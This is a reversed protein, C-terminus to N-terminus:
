YFCRWSSYAFVLSLPKPAVQIQHVAPNITPIDVVNHSKAGSVLVGQQSFHYVDDSNQTYFIPPQIGMKCVIQNM